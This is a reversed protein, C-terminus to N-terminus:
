HTNFLYSVCPIPINIDIFIYKSNVKDGFHGRDSFNYFIEKYGYM